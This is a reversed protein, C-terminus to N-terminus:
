VFIFSYRKQGCPIDASFNKRSRKIVKLTDYAINYCLLKRIDISLIFLIEEFTNVNMEKRM